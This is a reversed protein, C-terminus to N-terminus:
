CIKIIEDIVTKISYSQGLGMQILPKKINQIQKERTKKNKLLKVASNYINTVNCKDLVCEPIIEKKAIINILNAFKFNNIKQFFKAVLNTLFGFKYFM